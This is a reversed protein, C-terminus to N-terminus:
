WSSCISRFLTLRNMKMLKIKFNGNEFPLHVLLSCCNWKTSIRMVNIVQHLKSSRGCHWLVSRFKWKIKGNTKEVCDTPESTTTMPNAVNLVKAWRIVGNMIFLCSKYNNLFRVVFNILFIFFSFSISFVSHWFLFSTFFHDFSITQSIEALQPKMNEAIAVVSLHIRFQNILLSM